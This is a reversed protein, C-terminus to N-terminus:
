AEGRIAQHIKDHPRGAARAKYGALLERLDFRGFADVAIGFSRADAIKVRRDAQYDVLMAAEDGACHMCIKKMGFGGAYDPDVETELYRAGGPIRERCDDCTYAKRGKRIIHGAWPGRYVTVAM